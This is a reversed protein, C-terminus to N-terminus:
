GKNKSRGRKPPSEDNGADRGIEDAVGQELMERRYVRRGQAEIALRVQKGNISVVAIAIGGEIILQEGVKRTLVLAM